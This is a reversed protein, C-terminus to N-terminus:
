GVEHRLIAYRAGDLRRGLAASYWVERSTGEYLYGSKEAARRSPLNEVAINLEIRQVDTTRFLFRTFLTLAETAYGRNRSARDFVVYAV